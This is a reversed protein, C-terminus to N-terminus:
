IIYKTLHLLLDIAIAFQLATM